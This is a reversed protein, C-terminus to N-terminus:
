NRGLGQVMSARDILNWGVRRIEPFRGMAGTILRLEDLDLTYEWDIGTSDSLQQHLSHQMAVVRELLAWNDLKRAIDVLKGSLVALVQHQRRGTLKRRAINAGFDCWWGYSELWDGTPWNSEDAVKNLVALVQEVAADPTLAGLEVDLELLGGTCTHAIGSLYEANFDVAMQDYLRRAHELDRRARTACDARDEPELTLMRRLANGRVYYGFAEAGREARTEAARREFHEIVLQTAGVASTLDWLSYYAHALNGQLAIREAAPLGPLQLGRRLVQLSQNYRGLGEWGAGELRLAKGRQGPKTALSQLKRADDVMEKFKGNQHADLTLKLVSEYTCGNNHITASPDGDWVYEIVTDISWELVNALSVILDLKPNDTDPYLRSPDRQLIEALQAKTVNRYARAIDILRHLRMKRMDSISM